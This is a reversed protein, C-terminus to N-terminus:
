LNCTEMNRYKRLSCESISLMGDIKGMESGLELKRKRVGETKCVCKKIKSSKVVAQNIIKRLVKKNVEQM